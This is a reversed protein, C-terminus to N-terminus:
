WGNGTMKLQELSIWENLTMESGILWNWDNGAMDRLTRGSVSIRAIELLKLCNEAMDLLKWDNGAM